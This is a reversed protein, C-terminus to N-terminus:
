YVSWSTQFIVIRGDPSFLPNGIGKSPDEESYITRQNHGSSDIIYINSGRYTVIESGDSSFSAGWGSSVITVRATKINFIKITDPTATLLNDGVISRSFAPVGASGVFRDELTTLNFVRVSQQSNVTVSYLINDEDVFEAYSCYSSDTKTKIFRLGSGDTNIIAIGGDRYFVIKDLQPSIRSWNYNSKSPALKILGTGDLNMLYFESLYGGPNYYSSALFIKDGNPSISHDGWPINPYIQTFKSGDYNVRFLSFGSVFYISSDTPLAEWGADALVLHGTGDSRVVNLKSYLTPNPMDSTPGRCSGLALAVICAANALMSKIKMDM